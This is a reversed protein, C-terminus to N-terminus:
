VEFVAAAGMGTGICMSVVGYRPGGGEEEAVRRLHHLLTCVQRAGTCGLPHGLAIAGGLPNVKSADLGLKEVCYVVQVWAYPTTPKHDHCGPTRCLWAGSPSAGALTLNAPSRRGVQSAFAENLEFVDIDDITLGAKELVAPIAVAPGIGMVEPPVGVVAFAKLTGMVEQGLELAKSRRTVLLAAAGSWCLVLMEKLFSLPHTDHLPAPAPVTPPRAPTAPPPPAM